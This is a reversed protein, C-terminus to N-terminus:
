RKMEQDILAHLAPFDPEGVIRRLIRGQKDVLIATPTLKVNDFAAAVAGDRDLAIKFPLQHQVAYNRVYEPPDYSMAVAVLDFAGPAFRRYTKVVDPMEKICTACSTAWFNVYVVKGRLEGMSTRTGDLMSFGVEPAMARQLVLYAAVAVLSAAILAIVAMRSRLINTSM